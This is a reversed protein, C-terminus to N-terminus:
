AQEGALREAQQTRDTYWSPEPGCCQGFAERCIEPTGPDSLLQRRLPFRSTDASEDEFCERCTAYPSSWSYGYHLDSYYYAEDIGGGETVSGVREHRVVVHPM